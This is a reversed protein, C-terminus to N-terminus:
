YIINKEYVSRVMVTEHGRFNSTTTSTYLRKGNVIEHLMEKDGYEFHSVINVIGELKKQIEFSEKAVLIATEKNDYLDVTLRHELEGDSYAHTVLLYVKKEM